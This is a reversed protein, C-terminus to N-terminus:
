KRERYVRPLSMKTSMTTCQNMAAKLIAARRDLEALFMRKVEESPTVDPVRLTLESNICKGWIPYEVTPVVQDKVPPDRPDTSQKFTEMMKESVGREDRLRKLQALRQEGAATLDYHGHSARYWYTPSTRGGGMVAYSQDKTWAVHGYTSEGYSESANFYTDFTSADAESAEGFRWKAMVCKIDSIPIGDRRNTGTPPHRLADIVLVIADKNTLIGKPINTSHGDSYRYGEFGPIEHTVRTTRELHEAVRKTFWKAFHLSEAKTNSAIHWDRTHSGTDEDPNYVTVNYGLGELVWQYTTPRMGPWDVNPGLIAVMTEYSASVGIGYYSTTILDAEPNSRYM